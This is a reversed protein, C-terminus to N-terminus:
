IRIKGYGGAHAIQSAIGAYVAAENIHKNLFTELNNVSNAIDSPLVFANRKPRCREFDLGPRPEGKVADDDHAGACDLGYQRWAIPKAGSFDNLLRL